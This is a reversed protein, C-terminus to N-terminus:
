GNEWHARAYGEMGKSPAFSPYIARFQEVADDYTIEGGSQELQRHLWMLALMPARSQGQNCHILVKDGRELATDIDVLAKTVIEERIFAPDDVDVLNLFLRRPREAMLYEPHDKPAGRTTYGLLERHWPEKAATVVFWGDKIGKAGDDVMMLDTGNGVFLNPAVEIM